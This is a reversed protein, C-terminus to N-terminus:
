LNHTIIKYICVFMGFILVKLTTAAITFEVLPIPISFRIGHSENVYSKTNLYFLLKVPPNPNPFLSLLTLKIKFTELEFAMFGNVNCSLVSLAGEGM